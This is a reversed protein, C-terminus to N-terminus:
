KKRRKKRKRRNKICTQVHKRYNFTDEAISMPEENNHLNNIIYPTDESLPLQKLKEVEKIIVNDHPNNLIIQHGISGHDVIIIKKEM